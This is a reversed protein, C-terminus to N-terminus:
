GETHGGGPPQSALRRWLTARSIGLRRAAQARNGGSMELVGLIHQLEHDRLRVTASEVSVDREVAATEARGLIEVIGIASSDSGFLPLARVEVSTGACPGAPPEDQLTAAERSSLAEPLPCGPCPEGGGRYVQHCLEGRREGFLRRHAANQAQIRYGTDQISVPEGSVELLSEARNRERRLDGEQRALARHAQEVYLRLRRAEEELHPLRQGYWALLMQDEPSLTIRRHFTGLPVAVAGETDRRPVELDIWTGEPTAAITELVAAAAERSGLMSELIQALTVTTAAGGNTRTADFWATSTLNGREFPAAGPPDIAPFPQSALLM